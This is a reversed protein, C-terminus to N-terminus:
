KAMWMLMDEISVQQQENENWQEIYEWEVVEETNELPQTPLWAPNNLNQAIIIDAYKNFNFWAFTDLDFDEDLLVKFLEDIQQPALQKTQMLITFMEKIIWRKNEKEINRLSNFAFSINEDRIIDSLFNDNIKIRGWEQTIKINKEKLEEESFYKLYILMIAKAHRSMMIQVSDIIPTLKSKYQNHILQISDSVREVKSQWWTLYSNVWARKEAMWEMFQWLNLPSFDQLWLELREIRSDPTMKIWKFKEFRVKNDKTLAPVNGYVAFM